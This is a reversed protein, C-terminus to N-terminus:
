GHRLVERMAEMVRRAALQMNGDTMTLGEEDGANLMAEVLAQMDAELAAIHPAIIEVFRERSIFLRGCSPDLCQGVCKQWLANIEVSRAIEAM